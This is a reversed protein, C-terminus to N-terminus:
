VESRWAYQEIVYSILDAMVKVLILFPLMGGPLSESVAMAAVVPAVRIYPFFFLENIDPKRVGLDRGRARWLSAGLPYAFLAVNTVIAIITSVRALGPTGPVPLQILWAAIGAHFAGYHLAFFIATGRKTKSNAPPANPEDGTTFEKLCLMRIVFAVGIALNQGWYVWLVPGAPWRLFLAGALTVAHAILVGYISTDLEPAPGKLVGPSKPSEAAL